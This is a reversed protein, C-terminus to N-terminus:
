PCGAVFQTLFEVADSFDFQGRPLGFDAWSDNGVFYTLFELIDLFDLSGAPAALDAPCHESHDRGKILYGHGRDPGNVRFPATAFIEPVGDGDVDGPSCVDYGFFEGITQGAGNRRVSSIRRLQIGSGGSYVEVRGGNRIEGERSGLTSILLDDRGDGDTDPMGRGVAFWGQSVHGVLTYLLSYDAGSFLYARGTINGFTADFMDAVYIDAVGDGTLDGPSSLFFRGFEKASLSYPYESVDFVHLLMGDAGSYLFAQGDQGPGGGPAGAIYEDAGDGNLDPIRGIGMGLRDLTAVGDHTRVVSGDAGSLVYVRGNNQSGESDFGPAGVVFEGFGDGDLDGIGTSDFGFRDGEHEGPLRHIRDGTAGSYVNIFGRVTNAATGISQDSYCCAFGAESVLYDPVGDGDVDGGAKQRVGAGGNISEGEHSRIPSGTAGDFIYSKGLTGMHRNAGTAIESIGDGNIDGIAECTFGFEDGPAEGEITWLEVVGDQAYQAAAPAVAVGSAAFALLLPPLRRTIMSCAM